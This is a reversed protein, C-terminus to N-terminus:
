RMHVLLLADEVPNSYYDRRRVAKVFGNGEYFRIATGNSARVELLIREAGAEEMEALLATLLARGAGQRQFEPLVAINELEWEPGGYQAVLFGAAGASEDEAIWCIRAPTAERFVDLWQRPTWHAAKPVEANLEMLRAVDLENGIRIKM